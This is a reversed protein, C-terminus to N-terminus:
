IPAKCASDLEDAANRMAQFRRYPQGDLVGLLRSITESTTPRSRDLYSGIITHCEALSRL